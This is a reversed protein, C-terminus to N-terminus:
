RRGEGDFIIVSQPTQGLAPLVYEAGLRRAALAEAVLRGAPDDGVLSLLAVQSGLTHLALAVNYGVGSM